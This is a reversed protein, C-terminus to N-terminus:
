RNKRTRATKASQGSKTTKPQAAASPTSIGHARKWEEAYRNIWDQAAQDFGIDYGAKESQFWKHKNIEEVVRPDNLLADTAKRIM